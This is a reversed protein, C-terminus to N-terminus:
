QFLRAPALPVALPPPTGTLLTEAVLRGVLPGGTFGGGGPVALYLNPQDPVSGILPKGDDPVGQLGAWSRLLNAGKLAPVVACQFRLNILLQEFDLEKEGTQTNGRGQFGGGLICSGNPFQKLTFRGGVHTVIQHDMFSAVRDTISLMNINLRLGIKIGFLTAVTDSWAGAAIIVSRCDIDGGTTHLRYGTTTREAHSVTTHTVVRGGRREVARILARGALLPSAFADTACFTAATVSPGLWPARDRLVNGDLWEIVAGLDSMQRAEDRLKAVQEPTQAVRFGGNQMYGMDESVVEALRRWEVTSELFFPFLSLAKNQIGLTGANVGSAERWPEARDIVVVERGAGALRLAATLGAIGGGLIVIDARAALATAM